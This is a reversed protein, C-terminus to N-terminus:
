EKMGLPQAEMEQPTSAQTIISNGRPDSLTPPPLEQNLTQTEPSSEYFVILQANTLFVPVHVHRKAGRLNAKQKASMLIGALRMSLSGLM